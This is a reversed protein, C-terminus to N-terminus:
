VDKTEKILTEMLNNVGSLCPTILRMVAPHNEELFKHHKDIYDIHDNCSDIWGIAFSIKADKQIIDDSAIMFATAQAHKSILCFCHYLLERMESSQLEM